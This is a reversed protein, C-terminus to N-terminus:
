KELLFQYINNICTKSIKRPKDSKTTIYVGELANSDHKIITILNDVTKYVEMIAKAASTSVSPIQSLMIAGINEKTINDKKVRKSVDIYDSDHTTPKIDANSSYYSPESIKSLKHCTQIIWLASENVDLSRYISFGKVYSISTLSSILSEKTIPRGYKSSKYTHINGEILYFINHKHINTNSLRFSQETYRGDRISAALDNLTKREIMLKEVGEEDCIIIDGLPLNSTEIKINEYSPLLKMMFQLLEAERFDVKIIM